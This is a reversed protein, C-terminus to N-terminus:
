LVGWLRELKARYTPDMTDPLDVEGAAIMHLLSMLAADTDHDFIFVGIGHSYVHKNILDHAEPAAM